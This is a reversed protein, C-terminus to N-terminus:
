DGGIIKREGARFIKAKLINEAAAASLYRSSWSAAGGNNNNSWQAGPRMEEQKKGWYFKEIWLEEM